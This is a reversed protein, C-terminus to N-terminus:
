ALSLYLHSEGIDTQPEVAGLRRSRSQACVARVNKRRAPHKPLRVLLGDSLQNGRKDEYIDPALVERAGARYLAEVFKAADQRGTFRGLSRRASTGRNLHLWKEAETRNPKSLLWRVFVGHLHRQRGVGNSLPKARGHRVRLLTPDRKM